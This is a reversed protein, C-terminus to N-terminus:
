CCKVAACLSIHASIQVCPVAGSGQLARTPARKARAPITRQACVNARHFFQGTKILIASHLLGHCVAAHAAIQPTSSSPCHTSDSRCCCASRRAVGMAGARDHLQRPSYQHGAPDLCHRARYFRCRPHPHRRDHHPGSENSSAVITLQPLRPFREAWRAPIIHRRGVRLQPAPAERLAIFSRAAPADSLRASRGM